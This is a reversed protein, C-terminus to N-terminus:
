SAKELREWSSANNFHCTKWVVGRSNSNLGDLGSVVAMKESSFLFGMLQLRVRGTRLKVVTEKGGFRRSRACQWMCIM